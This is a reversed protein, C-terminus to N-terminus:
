PYCLTGVEKKEQFLDATDVGRWRLGWKWVKISKFEKFWSEIIKKRRGGEKDRM